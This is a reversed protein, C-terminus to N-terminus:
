YPFSRCRGSSSGQAQRGNQSLKAVKTVFRLDRFVCNNERYKILTLNPNKGSSEHSTVTQRSVIRTIHEPDYLLLTSISQFPGQTENVTSAPFSTLQAEGNFTSNSVMMLSKSVPQATLYSLATVTM